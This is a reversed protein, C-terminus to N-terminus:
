QFLGHLVNIILFSATLVSAYTLIAEGLTMEPEDESVIPGWREYPGFAEELTRPHRYTIPDHPKM